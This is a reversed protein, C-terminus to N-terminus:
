LCFPKFKLENAVAANLTISILASLKNAYQLPAPVKIPGMWNTYAWCLEYTITQLEAMSISAGKGDNGATDNYVVAYHTPNASGQNVFQAVMFFNAYGEKVVGSDVILGCDPNFHRGGKEEAFRDDIRKTVVVMVLKPKQAGFKLQIFDAVKQVEDKQVQDLEGESTGQRYFIVTKPLRGMTKKFAEIQEALQEAMADGVAAKNQTSLMKVSFYNKSFNPGFLGAMTVSTRGKSANATMAGVVLGGEMTRDIVWLNSGMKNIMQLVLNSYKSNAMMDKKPNFSVFFQLPIGQETFYSKMNKYIRNAGRKGIVFFIISPKQYGKSKKMVADLDEARGSQPLLYTYPDDVKIGFRGCSSILNGIVTDLNRDSFKDYVVTWNLLPEQSYINKVDIRDKQPVTGKNPASMIKPKNLYTGELQNAKPDIKLGLPDAKTNDISKGSSKNLSDILKQFENFRQDPPICTLEAFAKMVQYNSREEEPIGTSSVLESPFVHEQQQEEVVKGKHDKVKIKQIHVLLWQNPDKLTVKYRKQFYDKYSKYDPNPFPSDIGKNTLVKDIKYSKQSGYMTWVSRGVIYNEMIEEDRLGMAKRYYGVDEWVSSEHIIRATYDVMLRLGDEYVDYATKFGRYVLYNFNGVGVRETLDKRYYKKNRGIEVYNDIMMKNKLTVNMFRLLEAKNEGAELSKLSTVQNKKEIILVYENHETFYHRTENGLGSVSSYLTVGSLFTQGIKAKIARQNRSWITAILYRSDPSVADAKVMLPDTEYEKLQSKKIFSVFWEAFMSEEKSKQERFHNSRLAVKPGKALPKMSAKTPFKFKSDFNVGPDM